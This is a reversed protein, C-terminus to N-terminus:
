ASPRASLDINLRQTVRGLTEVLREVHEDTHAATCSIRVLNQSAAPKLVPNVYIGEELLGRVVRFLDLENPIVVPVIPTEGDYVWFGRARLESRLRQATRLLRHRREPEERIIQLAALVAAVSAPPLAASFVFGRTTHRLYEIVDQDAAIFGGVSAFSKSFTGMVIDVDALVGQQEAVGAGTPGFVGIGHAEDVFVRAHYQKALRVTNRLDAVDGEMSFVSESVILIREDPACARLCRELHDMDNHRFRVKRAGSRLAGEVLSAHLNHDCVLVDGKETLGSLTAYNTQFGTGFTMAAQKGVFAALEAELRVHLDLTGNLLRSGSCGSGYRRVAEIAAEKVRPHNILDLYDNSGFMLVTRDGWRIEGPPLGERPGFVEFYTYLGLAKADQPRMFYGGVMRGYNRCKEFLDPRALTAQSSAGSGADSSM